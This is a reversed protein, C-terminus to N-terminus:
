KHCLDLMTSNNYALEDFTVPSYGNIEVSANLANGLDRMAKFSKDHENNHVHGYILYDGIFSYMPFHSLTIAKGKM